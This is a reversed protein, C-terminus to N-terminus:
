MVVCSGNQQEVAAKIADLRDESVRNGKELLLVDSPHLTAGLHADLPLDTRLVEGELTFLNLKEPSGVLRGRDLQLGAYAVADAVVRSTAKTRDFFFHAPRARESDPFFVSLYIRKDPSIRADGRANRASNSFTYHPPLSPGLCGACCAM